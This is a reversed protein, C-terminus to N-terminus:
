PTIGCSVTYYYAHAFGESFCHSEILNDIGRRPIPIISTRNAAGRFRSFTYRPYFM